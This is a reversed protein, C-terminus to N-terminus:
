PSSKDKATIKPLSKIVMSIAILIFIAVGFLYFGIHPIILYYIAATGQAMLLLENLVVGTVFMMLGTSALQHDGIVKFALLHSLLYLTVMGLFVLHLYGIVIPRFGFALDSMGPFLSGVQLLFKLSVALASAGALWKWLLHGPFSLVKQHKWLTAILWLWAGAQIGTAAITLTYLWGPLSLWLVSLLFTPFVTYIFLRYIKKLKKQVLNPIAILSTLLGMCGFFFWGNYQFHLYFYQASLFLSQNIDRDVIMYTLSITGLSSAVWCLLGAKFWDSVLDNKQIRNLDRWLCISFLYSILISCASFFIAVFGYGQISFALLMGYACLLNGSILWRYKANLSSGRHKIIYNTMLTMLTHAVWGTFAFQAHGHLLNKQDIIPLFFAIKYRLIVGLLAVILLNILSIKLFRNIQPLM